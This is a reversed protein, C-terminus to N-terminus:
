VTNDPTSSRLQVRHLRATGAVPFPASRLTAFLINLEADRQETPKFSPALADRTVDNEHASVRALAPGSSCLRLM